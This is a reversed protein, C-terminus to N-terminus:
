GEQVVLDLGETGAEVRPGGARTSRNRFQDVIGDLALDTRDPSHHFFVLHKVGTDLALELSQEFTSHGWGERNRYEENTFMADHLLLDAGELFARFRGPWDGTGDVAYRGGGLENDPVYCIVAGDAEIRYGVTFSPHRMRLARIRVGEAECEGDNMHRFSTAAALADFPVPFFIPGMQRAFLTQVDMDEQEPGLILLESGPAYLPAFFPFGQIHDWHFHTLFINARRAAWDGSMHGGLLRLGTGADFILRRDGVRVEVCSTNGGYRHTGAGPTPISGRVGWCRLSVRRAESPGLKGAL